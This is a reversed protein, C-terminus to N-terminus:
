VAPPFFILNSASQEVSQRAIEFVIIPFLLLSNLVVELDILLKEPENAIHM